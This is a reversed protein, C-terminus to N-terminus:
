YNVFLYQVKCDFVVLYTAFDIKIKSNENLPM